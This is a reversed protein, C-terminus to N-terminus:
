QSATPTTETRAATCTALGPAFVHARTRRVGPRSCRWPTPRRLLVGTPVPASRRRERQRHPPERRPSSERTRRQDRVDGAGATTPGGDGGPSSTASASAACPPWARPSSPAGDTTRPNSMPARARRTAVDRPRLRTACPDGVRRRARAPSQHHVRDYKAGSTERFRAGQERRSGDGVGDAVARVLRPTEPARWPPTSRRAYAGPRPAGTAKSTAPCISSPRGARGRSRRRGGEGEVGDPSVLGITSVWNPQCTMRRTERTRGGSACSSGRRVSSAAATERSRARPRREQTSRSRRSCVRM